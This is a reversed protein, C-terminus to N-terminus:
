ENVEYPQRKRSSKKNEDMLVAHVFDKGDSKVIRIEIQLAKELDSVTLDDLLVEEGSRLLVDPLILYDGLDKDKLQNIIDQGTLM